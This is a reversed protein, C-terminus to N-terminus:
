RTRAREAERASAISERVRLSNERRRAIAIRSMLNGRSESNRTLESM